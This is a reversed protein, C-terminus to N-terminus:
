TLMSYGTAQDTTVGNCTSFKNPDIKRSRKKHAEYNSTDKVKNFIDDFEKLREADLDDFIDFRQMKESLKERLADKDPPAQDQGGSNADIKDESVIPCSGLTTFPPEEAVAQSTGGSHTMFKNMDKKPKNRKAFQKLSASATADLSVDSQASSATTAPSMSCSFVDSKGGATTSSQASGAPRGDHYKDSPAASPESAEVPAPAIQNFGIDQQLGTGPPSSPKVTDVAPATEGKSPDLPQPSKRGCASGM